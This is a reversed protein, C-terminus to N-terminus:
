EKAEEEHEWLALPGRTMLLKQSFKDKNVLYGKWSIYFEYGDEKPLKSFSDVMANFDDFGLHLPPVDTKSDDM